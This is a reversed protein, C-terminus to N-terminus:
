LRLANDKHKNYSSPKIKKKKKIEKDAKEGKKLLASFPFRPTGCNGPCPHENWLKLVFVYLSLKM